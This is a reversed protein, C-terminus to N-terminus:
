LHYGEGELLTEVDIYFGEKNEYKYYSVLDILERVFEDSVM